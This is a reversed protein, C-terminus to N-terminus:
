GWISGIGLVTDPAPKSPNILRIRAYEDDKGGFYNVWGNSPAEATAPDHFHTFGFLFRMIASKTRRGYEHNYLAEEFNKKEPVYSRGQRLFITSLSRRLADERWFPKQIVLLPGPKNSARQFDTREEPPLGLINEAVEFFAVVNPIHKEGAMFWFNELEKTHVRAFRERCGYWELKGTETGSADVGVKHHGLAGIEGDYDSPYVVKEEILGM